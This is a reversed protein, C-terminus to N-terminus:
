WCQMLKFTIMITMNLWIMKLVLLYPCMTCYYFMVPISAGKAKKLLYSVVYPTFTFMFTSKYLAKDYVCRYPAWTHCVNELSRVTKGACGANMRTVHQSTKCRVVVQCDHACQARQGTLVCSKILYYLSIFM